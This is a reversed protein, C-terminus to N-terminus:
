IEFTHQTSYKLIDGKWRFYIDILKFCLDYIISWQLNTIALSGLSNSDNIFPASSPRFLSLLGGKVRKSSM